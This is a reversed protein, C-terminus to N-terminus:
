VCVRRQEPMKLLDEGTLEDADVDQLVLVAITQAAPLGWGALHFLSSHQQIREHTWRLAAALFWSMTLVVWRCSDVTIISRLGSVLRQTLVIPVEFPVSPHCCGYVYSGLDRTTYHEHFIYLMKFYQAEIQLFPITVLITV